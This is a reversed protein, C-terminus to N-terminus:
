LAKQVIRYTDIRCGKVMKLHNMYIYIYIYIYINYCFMLKVLKEMHPCQCSRELNFGLDTFNAGFLYFELEWLYLYIPVITYTITCIYQIIHQMHPIYSNACHASLGVLSQRARYRDLRM